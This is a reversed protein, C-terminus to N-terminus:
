GLLALVGELEGPRLRGYLRFRMEGTRDVVVTSPIGPIRFAKSLASGADIVAPYTVGFRRLYARAARPDGPFPPSGGVYMVGVLFVGSGRLRDWAAQLVPEELRCPACDYNWFNVVLVQGRYQAPTLEGGLLASGAIKPAQGSVRVFAPVDTSSCALLGALVVLLAAVRRPRALGLV